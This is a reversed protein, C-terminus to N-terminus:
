DRNANNLVRLISLFLNIFDLYLSIAGMIYEDPSLRKTIIYTDYVLNYSGFSLDYHETLSTKPNLHALQSAGIYGSFLLSGGIGYVSNTLDCSTLLLVELGSLSSTISCALHSVTSVTRHHQLVALVHERYRLVDDGVSGRVLVSGLDFLLRLRLRLPLSNSNVACDSDSEQSLTLSHLVMGSFDYKSQMTFLTLGIFVGLTILRGFDFSLENLVPNSLTRHSPPLSHTCPKYSSKRNM